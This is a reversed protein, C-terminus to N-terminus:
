PMAAGKPKKSYFQLRVQLFTCNWLFLLLIEYNQQCCMVCFFDINRGFRRSDVFKKASIQWFPGSAESHKKLSRGFYLLVYFVWLLMGFIKDFRGGVTVWFIFLKPSFVILKRDSLFHLGLLPPCLSWWDRNKWM